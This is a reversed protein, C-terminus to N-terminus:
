QDPSNQAPESSHPVDEHRHIENLMQMVTERKAPDVELMRAALGRIGAARLAAGLKLDDQMQESLESNFFYGPPLGFFHAIGEIKPQTPATYKGSLLDGIYQKSCTDGTYTRVGEAIEELTHMKGDPRRITERATRLREAFTGAGPHADAMAGGGIQEPRIDDSPRTAADRSSDMESSM